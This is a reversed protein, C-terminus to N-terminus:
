LGAAAMEDKLARLSRYRNRLDELYISWEEGRDFQDYIDRMEVLLRAAEAYYPRSRGAILREVQQGYIELAADPRTAAAAEAVQLALPKGGYLGYGYGVVPSGLERLAQLAQDIEGDDLYIAVLLDNWRQERLFTLARPRVTEWQGAKRALERLERYRTLDPRTRLLKEAMELAAPEGRFKYRDKLWDLVRTDETRNARDVMLEEALDGHQHRVFIDALSLLEYDSTGQAAQVAEEVRDLSLLRDVVDHVRGTERCVRLYAEDDLEDMELDLLLAGFAQRRWNSSWDDGGPIAERAWGAVAKREEPTTQDMLLEPVEEGLGVGGFDVDFRYVAFLTRLIRERVARDQENRLCEGLAVACESIVEHMAGSEDDYSEFNELSELAVAEYVAAASAFDKQGAFGDGISTIALLQEAVDDPPGWRDEAQSFVAAAQRRYIQPDVPASRKGAVPLPVELLSELEPEQALMQKILAILEEKSRAELARNVEEVALFEEPRARWTLLLAAIHKCYGGGGVPCSCNASAIGDPGFTVHLRYPGGSSGLSRAKITMGQQRAEFIARDRFYQKGRQFSQPGVRAEIEDDSLAPIVSTSTEPM